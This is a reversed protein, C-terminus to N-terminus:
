HTIRPCTRIVTLFREAVPWLLLWPGPLRDTRVRPLATGHLFDATVQYMHMHLCKFSVRLLCTCLRYFLRSFYSYIRYQERPNFSLSWSSMTFAVM